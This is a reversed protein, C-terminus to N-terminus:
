KEARKTAAPSKQHQGGESRSGTSDFLVFLEIWTIGAVESDVQAPVWKRKKIFDLFIHLAIFRGMGPPYAATPSTAFGGGPLSGITQAGHKGHGCNRPLPCRYTDESDFVPWGLCGFAGISLIDSLLRTPKM